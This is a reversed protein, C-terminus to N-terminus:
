PAPVQNGSNQRGQFKRAETGLMDWIATFKAKTDEDIDAQDYAADIALRGLRNFAAWRVASSATEDLVKSWARANSPNALSNGLLKLMAMGTFAAVGPIGTASGAAAGSAGSVMMTPVLSTIAGRLGSLTARRAVFTSVDPIDVSEVAKAIDDLKTLDKMKLNGNAAKLLEETQQFRASGPVDLGFAKAFKGAHLQVTGDTNRVFADDLRDKFVASTLERFSDPELIRSLDKVMGPDDSRMVLGITEAIKQQSGTFQMARFGQAPTIGMRKAVANTFLEDTAHSWEQSLRTIDERAQAAGKGGLNEVMDRQMATRVRSLINVAEIDGKKAFEALRGDVVSLLNDAQKLTQTSTSGGEAIPLLTKDLFKKLEKVRGPMEVQGKGKVNPSRTPIMAGVDDVMDLIANGTNKLSVSVDPRSMVADFQPIFQDNIRRVTDEVESFVKMNVDSLAAVPAIREPLKTYAEQLRKAGEVGVKKFRSGIWPFRGFVNVFGRGITRDGVQVPMLSIGERLADETLERGRSSPGTMLRSWGRSVSQAATIGGGTALDILIEGEAVTKLDDNSLGHRERLGPAALGTAELFEMTAEPFLTGATVGALGGIATGAAAAVPGAPAAARGLVTAGTVGGAIQASMRGYQAPDEKGIDSGTLRGSIKGWFGTPKEPNSTVETTGEPASPPVVEVANPPPASEPTLAEAVQAEEPQKNLINQAMEAGTAAVEKVTSAAESAKMGTANFSILDLPLMALDRWNSDEEVPAPLQEGESLPLDSLTPMRESGQLPAAEAEDGPAAAAGGAVAGATAGKKFLDGVKLSVTQDASTGSLRHGEITKLDPFDDLMKRVVEAMARPHINGSGEMMQPRGGKGWQDPNAMRPAKPDGVWMITATPGAEPNKPDVRVFGQIVGVDKDENKIEYKFYNRIGTKQLHKPLTASVDKNGYPHVNDTLGWKGLFHKANAADAEDTSLGLAAALSGIATASMAAPTSFLEEGTTASKITGRKVAVYTDQIIGEFEAYPPDIVNKIIVGDYGERVAIDKLTETSVPSDPNLNLHKPVASGPIKDWTMGGADVILPKKFHAYAPLVGGQLWDNTDGFFTGPPTERWGTYQSAVEPNSSAWFDQDGGREPPKYREGAQPLRKTGRYIRQAEGPVAEPAAKTAGKVIDWFPM